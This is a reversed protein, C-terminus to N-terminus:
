ALSKEDSTTPKEGRRRPKWVATAAIAILVVGAGLLAIGRNNEYAVAVYGVLPLSWRARYVYDGTITLTWPDRVNNADGQTNILLQGSKDKTMKVIRHVIQTSPNNPARFVIVDRVALQSVPVRESIVVGGVSLGPRMSGSLIPNVEWSGNVLAVSGVGIAGLVAVTLVWAVFRGFWKEFTAFKSARPGASNPTEDALQVTENTEDPAQATEDGAEDALQVTEADTEDPAQATEDGAEDALQVTKASTKDTERGGGFLRAYRSPRKNSDDQASNKAM